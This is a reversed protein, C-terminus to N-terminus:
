HDSVKKLTALYRVLDILEQETMLEHLDAPMLSLDLKKKEEISDVDVSHVIGKDDKIRVEQASEGLLVGNVTQGEDTLVLWSEYNHSIGASPYLISEYMAAPALKDGIESLDPGIEIGQGAVVHCKACTGAGAFVIKGREVDGDRTVLEAIVPVPRKDKSVAM